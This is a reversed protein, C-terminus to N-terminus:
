TKEEEEFKEKLENKIVILHGMQEDDLLEYWIHYHTRWKNYLHYKNQAEKLYGVARAYDDELIAMLKDTYKAISNFDVKQNRADIRIAGKLCVQKHIDYSQKSKIRDWNPVSNDTKIQEKKDTKTHEKKTHEKKDTELGPPEFKHKQEGLSEIYWNYGKGTNREEKRIIVRDGKAYCKLQLHLYENPFFSYEKGDYKIGYCYWRGYESEGTKCEDYQLEIEYDINAKLKLAEQNAM